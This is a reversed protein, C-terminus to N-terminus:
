KKKDTLDQLSIDAEQYLEVTTALYKSYGEVTSIFDSLETINKASMLDDIIKASAELEKSIGIMDQYTINEIMLRIGGSNNGKKQINKNSEQQIMKSQEIVVEKYDEIKKLYNLNDQNTWASKM